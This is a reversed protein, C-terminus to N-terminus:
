QEFVFGTSETSLSAQISSQVPAPFGSNINISELRIERRGRVRVVRDLFNM